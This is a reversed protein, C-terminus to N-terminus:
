SWLVFTVCGLAGVLFGSYAEKPTHAELALRASIVIGCIILIAIMLLLLIDNEPNQLAWALCLGWVGGIGIAHASVKYFQTIISAVLLTFVIALMTQTLESFGTEWFFMLALGVYYIFTTWFVPPRDSREKMFLSRILGIRYLWWINIAPFLFTVVLVYGLLYWKAESAFSQPLAFLLISFALTPMIAPHFLVSIGIAVQRNM